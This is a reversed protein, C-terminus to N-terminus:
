NNKRLTITGNICEILVDNSFQSNNTENIMPEILEKPVDITIKTVNRGFLPLKFTARNSTKITELYSSSFAFTGISLVSNPLEINKIRAESFANNGIIELKENFIINNSIRANEFAEKIIEKVNEGFRVSEFSRAKLNVIYECNDSIVCNKDYNTEVGVAFKYENTNTGVYRVGNLTKYFNYTDGFPNGELIVNEPIKLEFKLGSLAGAQITKLNQPLKLKTLNSTNLTLNNLNEMSDPLELNVLKLGNLDNISTVSDPIDLETLTSCNYFCSSGISLLKEPLHIKNLSTCNMFSQLPITTINDSLSIETLSTCNAFSSVGIKTINNPITINKIDTCNNFASQVIEECNVNITVSTISANKARVLYKFANSSPGIYYANSYETLLNNPLQDLGNMTRITNPLSFSKLGTLGQITALEVNEPIKLSQLLPSHTIIFYNGYADMSQPLSISELSSCEQCNLYGYEVSNPITITKLAANKDQIIAASIVGNPINISKINNATNFVNGSVIKCNSHISFTSVDKNKMEFLLMYKNNKTGFYYGNEYETYQSTLNLNTDLLPSFSISAPLELVLDPASTWLINLVSVGSPIVLHKLSPCYFFASSGITKLTEPLTVSVLNECYEFASKGITTVGNQVTVKEISKISYFQYDGVDKNIVVEKLLSYNRNNHFVDGKESLLYFNNCEPFDRANTRKLGLYDDLSSNYFLKEVYMYFSKKGEFNKLTKPLTLANLIMGYFTLEAIETCGELIEVEKLFSPLKARHLTHDTFGFLYGFVKPETIKKGIYPLSIEKIFPFHNLAGLEFESAKNNFRITQILYCDELFTKTVKYEVNSNIIITSLSIPLYFKFEKDNAHQIVQYGEEYEEESFLWGSLAEENSADSSKGFFPITLETLNKIKSFMSKGLYKVNSPIVIKSLASNNEFISNSIVKTEKNINLTSSAFDVLSVLAYYPNNKSKAYVCNNDNDITFVNGNCGKFSDKEIESITDPLELIEIDTCDLFANNKIKTVPLTKYTTPIFIADANKQCSTVAFSNGDENLEFTLYELTKDEKKDIEDSTYSYSCIKCTNITYGKDEYTPEVVNIDFVHEQRDKIENCSNCKHYHFYEDFEWETSYNHKHDSQENGKQNSSNSDNQYNSKQSNGNQDSQNSSGCAPIILSLLSILIMKKVTKKMETGGGFM